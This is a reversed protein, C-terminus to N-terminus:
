VLKQLVPLPHIGSIPNSGIVEPNHAGRAGEAGDRHLTATTVANAHEALGGLHYIGAVPKSGTDEHNHAM